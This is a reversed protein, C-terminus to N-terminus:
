LSPQPLILNYGTAIFGRPRLALGTASLFFGTASLIRHCFFAGQLFKYPDSQFFWVQPRLVIGGSRHGFFLVKHCFSVYSHIIQSFCAVMSYGSLDVLRLRAASSAEVFVGKLLFERRGINAAENDNQFSLSGFALWQVQKSWFERRCFSGEVM